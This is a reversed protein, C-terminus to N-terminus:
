KPLGVLLMYGFVVLVVLLVTLLIWLRARNRPISGEGDSHDRDRRSAM